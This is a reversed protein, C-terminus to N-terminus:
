RADTAARLASPAVGLRQRFQAAMHAHSAFGAAAAVDALGLDACRLLRRARSIRRDVIYAHPTTGVAAKFARTFFGSSLGLAAAIEAVSLKGDMRAEILEDVLNLRRPTMWGSGRRRPTAECLIDGVKDRLMAACHELALPDVPDRALLLRRMAQAFRIAPPHVLDSFRRERPLRGPLAVSTRIVLYEGGEHSRSFVDCGKPVYALSNPLTRFASARDRAFAHTGRQTEFAFGIVATQPTYRVEYPLRPLLEVDFGGACIPGHSKM